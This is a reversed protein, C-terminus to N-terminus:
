ARVFAIERVENGTGKRIRDLLESTMERLPEVWAGDTVEISLRSNEYSAPRCVGAIREGLLAPWAGELCAIVWEGHQPTGRFLGYLVQSIPDM